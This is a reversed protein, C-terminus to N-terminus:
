IDRLERDDAQQLAHEGSRLGRAPHEDGADCRLLAGAVGDTHEVGRDLDAVEGTRHDAPDRDGRDAEARCEDHAGHPQGASRPTSTMPVATCITPEPVTARVAM